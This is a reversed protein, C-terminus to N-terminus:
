AARDAALLRAFAGGQRRLAAASGQEVIRGDALV